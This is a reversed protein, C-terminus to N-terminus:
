KTIKFFYLFGIAPITLLAMFHFFIWCGTLYCGNTVEQNTWTKNGACVWGFLLAIFLSAMAYVEKLPM